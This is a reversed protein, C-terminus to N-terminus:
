ATTSRRRRPNVLRRCTSCVYIVVQSGCQPCEAKTAIDFAVHLGTVILGLPLKGSGPNKKSAM